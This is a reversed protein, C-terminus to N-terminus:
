QVAGPKGAIIQPKLLASNLMRDKRVRMRKPTGTSGSTQVELFPSPDHWEALFAQLDEQIPM